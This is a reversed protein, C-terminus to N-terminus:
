QGSIHEVGVETTEGWSGNGFLGGNFGDRWHRLATITADVYRDQEPCLHAVPSATAPFWLRGIPTSIDELSQFVSTVRLRDVTRWAASAAEGEAYIWRGGDRQMGKCVSVGMAVMYGLQDEMGDPLGLLAPPVAELGVLTVRSRELLGAIAPLMSGLFGFPRPPGSADPSATPSRSQSTTRPVFTLVIQPARVAGLDLDLPHDGLLQSYVINIVACRVEPLPYIRPVTRPAATWYGALSLDLYDVVTDAPLTRSPWV